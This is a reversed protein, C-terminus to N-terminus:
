GHCSTCEDDDNGQVLDYDAGGKLYIMLDEYGGIYRGEYYIQPVSTVDRGTVEAASKKIEVLDIYDFVIGRITLEEVAMKCFPCNDKGYVITRNDEQLAVREVKDSVTEARSSAETRLYYLGKLGKKWANFHVKNVYSKPTGSPFFLNVSQGQCIFPQRDAAHTVVWNQDLEAATKYIAKEGENLFPLHQVSGKKTIISTWTSANDHGKDRLLQTLYANKV